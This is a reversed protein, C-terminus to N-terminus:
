IHTDQGDPPRAIAVEGVQQTHPSPTLTYLHVESIFGGGRLVRCYAWAWAGITTSPPPPPKKHALYGQVVRGSAQARPAGLTTRPSPPVVGQSRPFGTCSVSWVRLLMCQQRERCTASLTASQLVHLDVVSSFFYARSRPHDWAWLGAHHVTAKQSKTSRIESYMYGRYLPVESM